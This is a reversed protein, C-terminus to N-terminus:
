VKILVFADWATHVIGNAQLARAIEDASISGLGRMVRITTDPIQAVDAIRVCKYFQLCHLARSSLGLSEIPKDLIEELGGNPVIGNETDYSGDKYGEAYGRRFGQTESEQKAVKLYGAIGHLIYNWRGPARLKRIVNEEFAKIQTAPIELNDGIENWEKEEWYRLYLYKSEKPELASLAYQFGACIDKTMNHIPVRDTNQIIVDLLRGFYLQEDTCDIDRKM